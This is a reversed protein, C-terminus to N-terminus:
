GISKLIGILFLISLVPLLVTAMLLPALRKQGGSDRAVTPVQDIASALASPNGPEKREGVERAPVDPKPQEISPAQATTSLQASPKPEAAGSSPVKPKSEDITPAQTTVAPEASQAADTTKLLKFELSSTYYGYTQCNRGIRPAQGTLVVSENNDLIPGKVEFPVQGCHLNFIYATGSFQGDKIQGRFLLSDPHAGADLMGPRPKKYYFERSLGNAILYM